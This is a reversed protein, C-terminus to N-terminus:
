SGPGLTERGVGYSGRGDVLKFGPITTPEGFVPTYGTLSLPNPVYGLLPTIETPNNTMVKMPVGMYGASGVGGFVVGRWAGVVVLPTLAAEIIPFRLEANAFVAKNGLFQLYDYGRLESNGGY